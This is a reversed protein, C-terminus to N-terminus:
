FNIRSEQFSLALFLLFLLITTHIRRFLPMGTLWGSGTLPTPTILLIEKPLGDSSSAFFALRSITMKTSIKDKKLISLVVPVLIIRKGILFAEGFYLLRLFLLMLQIVLVNHFTVVHIYLWLTRFHAALVSSQGIKGLEYERSLLNRFFVSWKYWSPEKDDLIGM